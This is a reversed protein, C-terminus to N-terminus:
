VIIMMEYIPFLPHVTYCFFYGLVIHSDPTDKGHCDPHARIQTECADEDEEKSEIITEAVKLSGFKNALESKTM